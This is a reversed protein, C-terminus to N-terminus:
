ATHWETPVKMVNDILLKVAKMYKMVKKLDGEFVLEKNMIAKIPDKNGEVVEKWVDYSGAISMDAKKEVGAEVGGAKGKMLENYVYLNQKVGRAPDAYVTFLFSSDFGQSAKFFVKDANVNDIADQAWEQSFFQYGVKM